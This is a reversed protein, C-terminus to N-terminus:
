HTSSYKQIESNKVLLEKTNIIKYHTIASQGSEDVRVKAENKANDIRLLRARITDQYKTPIGSVITHYIKEIKHSQLDHM